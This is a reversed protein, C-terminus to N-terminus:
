SPPPRTHRFPSFSLEPQNTAWSPLNTNTEMLFHRISVGENIITPLFLSFAYLPGAGLSHTM